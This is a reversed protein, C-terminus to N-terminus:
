IKFFIAQPLVDVSIPGTGLREGDAEIPWSEPCDVAIAAGKTRRVARHTLHAGRVMRTRVTPAHSRPGALLQVDFVGDQVTSRPAVNLGGGLFQGNAIVM